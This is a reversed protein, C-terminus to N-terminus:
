PTEDRFGRRIWPWILYFLWGVTVPWAWLHLINKRTATLIVYGDSSSWRGPNNYWLTIAFLSWLVTLVFLLRRIGRRYNLQTSM